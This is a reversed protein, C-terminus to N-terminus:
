RWPSMADVPVRKPMPAKVIGARDLISRNKARVIVTGDPMASVRPRMGPPAQMLSRIDARVTTQGKATSSSEAM